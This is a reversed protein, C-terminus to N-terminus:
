EAEPAYPFGPRREEDTGAHKGLVWGLDGLNAAAWDASESDTVVALSDSYRNLFGSVAIVAIIERIQQADYHNRLDVFHDPTVANPSAGSALAFSLAAREAHNFAPSRDFSWLQKIRDSDIGDKFLFYAGHAQCHRCGSALSAVTFVEFKLQRHLSGSQLAVQTLEFFPQLFEPWNFLELEHRNEYISSMGAGTVNM